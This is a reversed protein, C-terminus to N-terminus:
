PQLQNDQNDNVVKVPTGCSLCFFGAGKDYADCLEKHKRPDTHKVQGFMGDMKIFEMEGEHPLEVLTFRQGRRLNYLSVKSM